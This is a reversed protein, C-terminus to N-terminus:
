QEHLGNTQMQWLNVKLKIKNRKSERASELKLVSLPQYTWQVTMNAIITQKTKEKRMNNLTNNKQTLNENIKGNKKNQENKYNADINSISFDIQQM